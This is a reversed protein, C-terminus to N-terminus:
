KFGIFIFIYIFFVNSFITMLQSIIWINDDIMNLMSKYENINHYPNTNHYFIYDLWQQKYIMDKKLNYEDCLTLANGYAKNEIYYQLLTNPTCKSLYKLEIMNNNNNPSNLLIFVKDESSRIRLPMQIYEKENTNLLYQLKNDYINILGDEYNIIISNNWYISQIIKNNDDNLSSIYTGDEINWIFIESNNNLVLLQNNDKNYDM